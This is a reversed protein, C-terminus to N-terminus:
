SAAADGFYTVMAVPHGEPAKQQYVQDLIDRWWKMRMQRVDLRRLLTLDSKALSRM